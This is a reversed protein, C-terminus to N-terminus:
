RHLTTDSDIRGDKMHVTRRSYAAAGPDHTIMVVTQGLERNLKQLMGLVLESSSSDLNGTPEVSVGGDAAYSEHDSTSEFLSFSGSRWASYV